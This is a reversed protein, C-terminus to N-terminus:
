VECVSIKTYRRLPYEGDHPASAYTASMRGPSCARVAGARFLRQALAEREDDACILGVTQLHNKHVHLTGLKERPLPRVWPHGFQHSLKLNSDPYATVSCRGEKGRFVRRPSYIAELEETYLQLTSQSVIGIDPKERLAAHELVPLFREAFRCVEEYDDTDLFVGQCSSCLLQRTEVIHVALTALTTDTVGRETVYAFSLKHGWEIVRVNPPAMGRLARVAEDGGWVVIADAADVLTQIHVLDRSSYDFVYVREAAEPLYRFLEQLLRISLGGDAAPLKLINVNGTLLGELVSFAPLGDANGAAIHLLVGLPLIQERVTHALGQPSYSKANPYDPGLETQLRLMLAEESFMTRAEDLYGRGQAPSIGLTEMVDLYATEDIEAIMQGCAAAVREPTPPDKALTLQLREALTDLVADCEATDLVQGNVLNM